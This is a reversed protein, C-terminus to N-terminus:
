STLLNRLDYQVYLRSPQATLMMIYFVSVGGQTEGRKLVKQSIAVRVREMTQLAM